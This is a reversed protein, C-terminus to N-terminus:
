YNANKRERLSEFLADLDKYNRSGFFKEANEAILKLQKLEKEAGDVINQLDAILYAPVEDFNEDYSSFSNKDILISTQLLKDLCSM